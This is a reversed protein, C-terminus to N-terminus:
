QMVGNADISYGDKVTNKEMAGVPFGTDNLNFFYWKDAINQWGTKMEGNQLDFYYWQENLFRWSNAMKGAADGDTDFYYWKGNIEQWGTLMVGDGNLFYWNDGLKQWNTQMKGQNDFYFWSNNVQQWGQALKGNVEYYWDAGNQRWGVVGEGPGKANPDAQNGNHQESARKKNDNQKQNKNKKKGKASYEKFSGKSIGSAKLTILNFVYEDDEGDPSEPSGSSDVYLSSAFYQKMNDNKDYVARVAIHDFEKGSQNFSNINIKPSNSHKKAIKEDGNKNNYYVLIDYGTAYQVRDWSYTTENTSFNAPEKLVYFPYANAKIKISNKSKEVVAMEYAGRVEVVTSSDFSHGSEPKVSITYTYPKKVSNQKGDVSFGSVEYGSDLAVAEPKFYTEGSALEVDESPSIDIQVRGVMQEAFVPFALLGSLVATLFLIRKKM